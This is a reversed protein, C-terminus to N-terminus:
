LEEILKKRYIQKHKKVDAIFKNFAMEFRKATKFGKSNGYTRVFFVDNILTFWAQASCSTVLMTAILEPKSNNNPFFADLTEGHQKIFCGHNEAIQRFELVNM